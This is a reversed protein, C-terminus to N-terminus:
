RDLLLVRQLVVDRFVKLKREFDVMELLRVGSLGVQLLRYERRGSLRLGVEWVYLEFWLCL